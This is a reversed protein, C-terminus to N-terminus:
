IKLITNVKRNENLNLSVDNLKEWTEELSMSDVQYINKEDYDSEFIGTSGECCKNKHKMYYSTM